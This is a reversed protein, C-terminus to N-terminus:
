TSREGLIRRVTAVDLRAAQAVAHEDRGADVQQRIWEGLVEQSAGPPPGDPYMAAVLISATHRASEIPDVRHTM